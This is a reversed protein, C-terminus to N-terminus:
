MSYCQERLNCEEGIRKTARLSINRSKYSDISPEFDGLLRKPGNNRPKMQVDGTQHFLSLYRRVTRESVNLLSSIERPSCRQVLYVCIIRWLLDLSYPNPMKPVSVVFGCWLEVRMRSISPGSHPCGFIRKGLGIRGGCACAIIRPRAHVCFPRSGLSPM